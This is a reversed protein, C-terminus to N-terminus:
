KPLMRELRRATVEIAATLEDESVCRARVMVLLEGTVAHACEHRAAARLRADTIEDLAGWTKGLRIVCIRNNQPSCTALGPANSHIIRVEWDVVGWLKILRECEAKFIAFHRATTRSM